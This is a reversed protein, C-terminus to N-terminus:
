RGTFFINRAVIFLHIHIGGRDRVCARDDKVFVIHWLPHVAFQRSCRSQGGQLKYYTTHLIDARRFDLCAHDRFNHCGFSGKEGAGGGTLPSEHDGQGSYVAVGATM